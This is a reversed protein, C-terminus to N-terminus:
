RDPMVLGAKSDLYSAPVIRGKTIILFYTFVGIVIAMCIVMLVEIFKQNWKRKRFKRLEIIKGM